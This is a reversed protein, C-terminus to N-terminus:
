GCLHKGEATRLQKKVAELVDYYRVAAEYGILSGDPKVSVVPMSSAVLAEAIVSREGDAAFLYLPSENLGYFAVGSKGLELLAPFVSRAAGEQVLHAVPRSNPAENCRFGLQEFAHQDRKLCTLEMRPKTQMDDKEKEKFVELHRTFV